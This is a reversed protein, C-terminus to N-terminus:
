KYFHICVYQALSYRVESMPLIKICGYLRCNVARVPCNIIPHSESDKAKISGSCGVCRLLREPCDFRTHIDLFRVVLKTPRDTAVDLCGLPCEVLRNECHSSLHKALDAARVKGLPCALPCDVFRFVCREKLHLEEDAKAILEGCKYACPIARRSCEAEHKTKHVQRVTEGCFACLAPRNPCIEKMHYLVDKAMVTYGCELTCTVRRNVCEYKIHTLMDKLLVVSSCILKCPVVRWTCHPLHLRLDTATRQEGCGNSCFILRMECTSSKHERELHFRYPKECDSCTILRHSCTESSHAIQDCFLIQTKCDACPIMRMRCDKTHEALLEQDLKQGCGLPCAILMEVVGRKYVIPGLNGGSARSIVLIVQSLSKSYAIDLPTMGDCDSLSMDAGRELLLKVCQASGISSAYHAATKKYKNQHNV